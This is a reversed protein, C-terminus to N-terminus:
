GQGWVGLGPALLRALHSAPTRAHCHLGPKWRHGAFALNVVSIRSDGEVMDVGERVGLRVRIFNGNIYDSHGEEHLLSLIVRTQDDALLFPLCM